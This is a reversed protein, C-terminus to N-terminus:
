PNKGGDELLEEALGRPFGARVLNTVERGLARKGEVRRGIKTLTERAEWPFVIWRNTEKEYYDPTTLTGPKCYITAVKIQKPANSRLINRPLSCAEAATPFMM